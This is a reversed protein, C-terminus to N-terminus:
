AAAPPQQDLAARIFQAVPQCAADHLYPAACHCIQALAPLFQGPDLIQAGKAVADVQPDLGTLRITQARRLLFGARGSILARMTGGERSSTNM